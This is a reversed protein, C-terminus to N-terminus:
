MELRENERVTANISGRPYSGGDAYSVFPIMNVPLVALVGSFVAVSRIRKTYFGDAGVIVDYIAYAATPSNPALSGSKPPTPLSVTPTVGDSDTLLSHQVEANSEEAGSIRVVAGEIPVAEDAIYVRVMLAGSSNEEM